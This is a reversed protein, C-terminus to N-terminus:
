CNKQNTFCVTVQRRGVISNRYILKVTHIYCHKWYRSWCFCGVFYYIENKTSYTTAKQNIATHNQTIM